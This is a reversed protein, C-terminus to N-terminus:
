HYYVGSVGPRGSGEKFRITISKIVAREYFGGAHM